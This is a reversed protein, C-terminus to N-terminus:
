PWSIPTAAPYNKIAAAEAQQVLGERAAAPAFAAPGAGVDVNGGAQRVKAKLRRGSNWAQNILKVLRDPDFDVNTL